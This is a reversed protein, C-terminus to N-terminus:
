YIHGSRPRVVTYSNKKSITTDKYTTATKAVLCGTTHVMCISFYETRRVQEVTIIIQSYSRYDGIGGINNLIVARGYVNGRVGVYGTEAKYTKGCSGM